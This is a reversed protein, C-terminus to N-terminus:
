DDNAEQTAADCGGGWRWHGDAGRRSTHSKSKGTTASFDRPICGFYNDHEADKDNPCPGPGCLYVAEIRPDTM